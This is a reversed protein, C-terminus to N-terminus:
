LDLSARFAAADRKAQMTAERAADPNLASVYADLAADAYPRWKNAWDKLVRINDGHERAYQVLATTFRQTRASDVLEADVLLALLNDQNQRAM